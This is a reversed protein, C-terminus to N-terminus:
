ANEKEWIDIIKDAVKNAREQEEISMLRWGYKTIYESIKFKYNCSAQGIWAQRNRGRNSLNQECAYKWETIVKKAILFFEKENCLLEKAKLSLEETEKETLNTYEETLDYMGNKDDEWLYYPHYLRKM